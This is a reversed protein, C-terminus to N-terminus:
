IYDVLGDEFEIMFRNLAPKWDRIPMTWRKAAALIVLYIGKKASDDRPFLKRKKVAKRIVSNLSEIANTTCIAQRFENLDEETKINKAAAQAIAKLEKKKM